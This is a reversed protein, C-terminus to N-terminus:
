GGGGGLRSYNGQTWANLLLRKNKVSYPIGGIGGDKRRDWEKEVLREPPVEVM